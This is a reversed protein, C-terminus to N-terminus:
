QGRWKRRAKDEAEALANGMAIREYMLRRPDSESNEDKYAPAEAPAVPRVQLAQSKRSAIRFNM